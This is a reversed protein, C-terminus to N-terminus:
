RPGDARKQSLVQLQEPAWNGIPVVKGYSAPVHGGPTLGWIIPRKVINHEPVTAFGDTLVIVIDATALWGQRPHVGQELKNAVAQFFQTFDTGGGGKLEQLQHGPRYEAIDQITADNQVLIIRGRPAMRGVENLCQNALDPTMSGSTDLLVAATCARTYRHGPMGPYRRDERHHTRRRGQKISSTGALRFDTRWDRTPTLISEILKRVGEPLSGIGTLGGAQNYAQAVHGQIVSAINNADLRDPNSSDDDMGGCGREPPPHRTKNSSGKKEPAGSPTSAEKQKPNAILKEYYQDASLDDKFHFDKPWIATCCMDPIKPNITLDTAINWTEHDRGDHRWPHQHMVHLIEHEMDADIEAPTMPRMPKAFDMVRSGDAPAVMYKENYLLHITGDARITVGMSAKLNPEAQPILNTLFYGYFPKRMTLRARSNRILDDSM